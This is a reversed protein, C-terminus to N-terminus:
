IKPLPCSNVAYILQNFDYAVVFSIQMGEHDQDYDNNADGDYDDDEDVAGLIINPVHILQKM